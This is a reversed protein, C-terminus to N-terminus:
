DVGKSERHVALMTIDDFQPANAIHQFLNYKIQDILESATPAATELLAKFRKKGFLNEDPSM